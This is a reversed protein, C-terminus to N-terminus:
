SKFMGLVKNFISKVVKITFWLIFAYTAISMIQALLEGWTPSFWKTSDNLISTDFMSFQKEFEQLLNFWFDVIINIM